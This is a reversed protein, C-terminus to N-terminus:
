FWKAFRLDSYLWLWEVIETIRSSIRCRSLFLSVSLPYFVRFLCFLASEKKGAHFRLRPADVHCGYHEMSAQRQQQPAAARAAAPDGGDGSISARKTARERERRGADDRKEDAALASNRVPRPNSDCWAITRLIFIFYGIQMTKFCYM